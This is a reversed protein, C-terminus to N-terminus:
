EGADGAGGAGRTCDAEGAQIDPQLALVHNNSAVLPHGCNDWLVDNLVLRRTCRVITAHCPFAAIIQTAGVGLM